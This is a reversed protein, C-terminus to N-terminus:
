SNVGSQTFTTATSSFKIELSDESGNGAQDAALGVGGSEACILPQLVFKPPSIDSGGCDRVMRSAPTFSSVSPSQYSARSTRVDGDARRAAFYLFLLTRQSKRSGLLWFLTFPPLHCFSTEPVTCNAVLTSAASQRAWALFWPTLRSLSYPWLGM